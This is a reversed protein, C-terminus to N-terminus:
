QPQPFLPKGESGIALPASEDQLECSVDIGFEWAAKRAKRFVEFSDPRVLLCVYQAAPDLFKLNSIDFEAAPADTSVTFLNDDRCELYIPARDNAPVEIPTASMVDDWVGKRAGHEYSYKMVEAFFEDSGPEKRYSYPGQSKQARYRDLYREFPNGAVDLEERAVVVQNTLIAPANPRAEVEFLRLKSALAVRNTLITLSNSHVEIEFPCRKSYYFEVVSSAQAASLHSTISLYNDPNHAVEPIYRGTEIPEFGMDLNRDQILQRVRRQLDVCGPRLVLISYRLDHVRELDDLFHEFDNGPASLAAASIARHEPLIVIQDPQVDIYVPDKRMNSSAPWKAFALSPFLLLWLFIKM